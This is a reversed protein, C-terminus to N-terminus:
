FDYRFGRQKILTEVHTFDNISAFVERARSEDCFQRMMVTSTGDCRVMWLQGDRAPPYLSVRFCPRNRDDRFCTRWRGLEEDRLWALVFREARNAAYWAARARQAERVAKDKM